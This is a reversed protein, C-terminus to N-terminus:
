LYIFWCHQILTAACSFLSGSKNRIVLRVPPVLPCFYSCDDSFSWGCAQQPDVSLNAEIMFGSMVCHATILPIHKDWRQAWGWLRQVIVITNKNTQFLCCASFLARAVPLFSPDLNQSEWEKNRQIDVLRREQFICLGSLMCSSCCYVSTRTHTHWSGGAYVNNVGDFQKFCFLSQICVMLISGQLESVFSGALSGLLRCILAKFSTVLLSLLPLLIRWGETLHLYVMKSRFSFLQFPYSCYCCILIKLGSDRVAALLVSIQHFLILGTDGGGEGSMVIRWTRLPLRQKLPPPWRPARRGRSQGWIAFQCYTLLWDGCLHNYSFHKRGNVRLFLM